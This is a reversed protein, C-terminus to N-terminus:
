KSPKPRSKTGSKAPERKTPPEEDDESKAKPKAGPPAAAGPAGPKAKPMGGGAQTPLMGQAMLDEEAAMGDRIQERITVMDDPEADGLAKGYLRALYLEKFLPSLMPVGSFLAVAESIADATGSVDFTDLGGTCAKPVAEGRGLSALVLLRRVFKRIITGFADLLVATTAADKDKSEGSRQLAANDMNASLAMSFMVRHMERMADNCSERAEKYPAVDPGVYRADDDKGRVQTYGQGRIQNVARSGDTQAEAVALGNGGDEPGLFEYLVSFLSKYEAWSMACRKNFHERALSHLKGMAFMGEPMILREFPVRKFDHDGHAAVPIPQDTAPPQKPDVDVVYKAWGDADWLTYTHRIKARRDRPTGRIQEQTMVIVWLLRGREDTQWDIVQEAPVLQLYPDLGAREAALKSDIVPADEEDIAPLDALIWATRVQLAERLVDVLFGHMTTGGEDDDEDDADELGYDSPREASDTVDTVWREWWEAAKPTIQEGTAKDEDHFTVTLPDTGLGALLHDIITGAYPYYHARKTRMEYVKGDEHLHQPFLRALVAKDGLLRDGGAYLARCEAWYDGRWEPHREQLDGWSLSGPGADAIAAQQLTGMASPSRDRMRQAVANSLELGRPANALDQDAQTLMPGRPTAM